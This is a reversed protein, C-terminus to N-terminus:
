YPIFLPSFLAYTNSLFFYFQRKHVLYVYTSFGLSDEFSSNSGIFSNLLTMPYLILICFDVTRRYALLFFFGFFLVGFIKNM